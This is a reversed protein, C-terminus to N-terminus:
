SDSFNLFVLLDAESVDGYSAFVRRTKHNCARGLWLWSASEADKRPALPVGDVQNGSPPCM